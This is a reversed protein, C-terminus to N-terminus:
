QGSESDRRGDSQWPWCYVEYGFTASMRNSRAERDAERESDFLAVAYGDETTLPTPWDASTGAHIMVFYKASGRNRKAFRQDHVPCGFQVVNNDPDCTRGCIPNPHDATIVRSPGHPAFVEAFLECEDPPDVECGVHLRVGNDALHKLTARWLTIAEVTPCRRNWLDRARQVDSDWTEPEVAISPGMAGCTCYILGNHRMQLVVHEEDPVAFPCPALDASYDTM